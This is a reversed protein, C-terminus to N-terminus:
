RPGCLATRGDGGLQLAPRPTRNLECNYMSRKGRMLYRKPYWDSFYPSEVPVDPDKSEVYIISNWGDFRDCNHSYNASVTERLLRTSMPFIDTLVAYLRRTRHLCMRRNQQREIRRLKYM